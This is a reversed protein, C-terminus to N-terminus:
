ASGTAVFAYRRPATSLPLLATRADELRGGLERVDLVPEGLPLPPPDPPVDPGYHTEVVTGEIQPPEFPKGEIDTQWAVYADVVERTPRELFGIESTIPAFRDDLLLRTVSM